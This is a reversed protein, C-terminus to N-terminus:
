RRSWSFIPSTVSGNAAVFNHVDPLVSPFGGFSISSLVALHTALEVSASPSSMTGERARHGRRCYERAGTWAAHRDAAAQSSSHRRLHARCLAISHPSRSAAGTTQDRDRDDPRSCRLFARRPHESSGCSSRVPPISGWAFGVTWPILVFGAVAIIAGVSGRLKSGVCVTIGVINPGPVAHIPLSDVDRRNGARGDVIQTRRRHPAGVRARRWLRLTVGSSVLLCREWRRLNV